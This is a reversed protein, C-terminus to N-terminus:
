GAKVLDSLTRTALALAAERALARGREYAAEFEAPGLL